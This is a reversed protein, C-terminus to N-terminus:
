SACLIFTCAVEAGTIGFRRSSRLKTAASRFGATKCQGLIEWGPITFVLSGAGPDVPNGHYEPEMLHRVTGNSDLIAKVLSRENGYAFPCMILLKGGPALIRRAEALAAPVSPIHELLECNFYIDFSGGDFSLAQVDEHRVQPFKKRQAESPLYESGVFRPFLNDAVRGAFKTVAEPAYVRAAPGYCQRAELLELLMARLRSNCGHATITERYNSGDIEIDRPLVHGALPDWLGNVRIDDVLATIYNPDFVWKNAACWDAWDQLCAFSENIESFIM